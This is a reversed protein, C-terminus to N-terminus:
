YSCHGCYGCTSASCATYDKDSEESDSYEESELGQETVDVGGHDNDFEDLNFEDLNGPRDTDSQEGIWLAQLDPPLATPRFDDEDAVFERIELTDIGDSRVEITDEPRERVFTALKQILAALHGLVAQNDAEWESVQDRVHITRIDRFVGSDHFALIFNPIQAVWLRPLEDIMIDDDIKRTSRTKLDFLAEQPINRRNDASIIELATNSAPLKQGVSAGELVDVLADPDSKGLDKNPSLLSHAKSSAADSGALDRLYGDSEFRLLIDLGAFKYQIIRQYSASDKAVGEWTTYMEPFSHGYGRVDPIIERPSREKRILFVTSGVVQILFRFAKGAKRVFRLLNGITSSCAVLDIKSSAFSPNEIFIARVAPEMPFDAYRAANKDRFYTGRDRQLRQPHKLPTWAPPLGPVKIIPNKSNLWNYSGVYNVGTINDQVADSRSVLQELDETDIEALLPGNPPPLSM